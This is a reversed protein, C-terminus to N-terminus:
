EVELVIVDRNESCRTVEEAASEFPKEDDFVIVVSKEPDHRSLCEILESVTM